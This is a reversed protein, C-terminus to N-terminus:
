VKKVNRRYDDLIQSPDNTNETLHIRHSIMLLSPFSELIKILSVIVSLPSSHTTSYKTLLGGRIRLTTEIFALISRRNTGLSNILNNLSEIFLERRFKSLKCQRIIKLFRNKKM